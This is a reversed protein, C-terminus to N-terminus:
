IKCENSQLPQNTKNGLEIPERCACGPGVHCDKSCSICTNGCPCGKTCIKCCQSILDINSPQGTLSTALDLVQRDLTLTSKEQAYTAASLSLLLVLILKKM